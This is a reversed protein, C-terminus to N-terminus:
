FGVDLALIGRSNVFIHCIILSAVHRQSVCIPLWFIKFVFIFRCAVIEAGGYNGSHVLPQDLSAMKNLLVFQNM